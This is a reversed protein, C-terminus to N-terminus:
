RGAPGGRPNRVGRAPGGRGAPLPTAMRITPVDSEDWTLGDAGSFLENLRREIIKSKADARKKVSDRLAQGQKELEVIEKLRRQQHLDFQQELLAAAAKRTQAVIAASATGDPAGALTNMLTQLQSDLEQDKLTVEDPPAAAGRMQAALAAAYGSEAGRVTDDGQMRAMMDVMAAAYAANGGRQVRGFSLPVRPAGGVGEWGLGEADSFMADLRQDVIQRKAATRKDLTERLRKAQGAVDAVARLHRQQRLAFQRELLEAVNKRATVAAPTPTDGPEGLPLTGVIELIKNELTAEEAVAEDVVRGGRQLMGEQIQEPTLITGGGQAAAPVDRILVAGLTVILMLVLSRLPMM